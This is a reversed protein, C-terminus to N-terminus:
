AQEVDKAVQANMEHDPEQKSREWRKTKPNEAPLQEQQQEQPVGMDDDGGSVVDEFVGQEQGQDGDSAGVSVIATTADPAAPASPSSLLDAWVQDPLIRKEAEM